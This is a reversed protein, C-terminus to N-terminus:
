FINPIARPVRGKLDFYALGAVTATILDDMSGSPANILPRGSASQTVSLNEMEIKLEKALPLDDKILLQKNAMLRYSFEYTSVKDFRITAHSITQPSISAVFSYKKILPSVGVLEARNRLTMIVSAGVGGADVLITLPVGKKHYWANFNIWERILQDSQELYDGRLVEIAHVEYWSRLIVPMEGFEYERVLNKKQLLVMASRDNFFAPDWSLVAREIMEKDEPM